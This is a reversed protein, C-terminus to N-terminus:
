DQESRLRPVLSTYSWTLIDACCCCVFSCLPLVLSELDGVSTNRAAMSQYWSPSAELSCTCSSAEAGAAQCSPSPLPSSMFVEKAGNRLWEGALILTCEHDQPQYIRGTTLCAKLLIAWLNSNGKSVRCVYDSLSWQDHMVFTDCLKYAAHAGSLRYDGIAWPISQLTV